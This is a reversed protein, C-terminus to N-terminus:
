DESIPINIEVNLGGKKNNSAKITGNHASIAQTAIALGLGAGGTERNRAVSVRYFPMFLKELECDRVGPGDDEITMVLLQGSSDPKCIKASVTVSQTAFKIANRLVNEIASAVLRPELVLTVHPLPIISLQKGTSQAEYCADQLTSDIFSPFVVKQKEIQQVNSELRSLQLVKAIMSDIQHAEKEIRDMLQSQMQKQEAMPMNNGASDINQQTIGIALQLRALPSRLEHSIDALLRKQNELLENVKRSMTQFEKSLEGIEDQRHTMQATGAQLNGKAMETAAERLRKIPRAFSWALGFCLIGSVTLAMVGLLDGNHQLIPLRIRKGTFVAYPKNNIVINAPGFFLQNKAMFGYANNAASLNKFREEFPLSLSPINHILRENQIDLLIIKLRNDRALRHIVSRMRHAPTNTLRTELTSAIDNLLRQDPAPIAQLDNSNIVQRMILVTGIIMMITTIWFWLFLRGFISNLPNLKKLKALKM